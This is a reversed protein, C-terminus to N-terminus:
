AAPPARRGRRLLLVLGVTIAVLVAAGCCRWVYGMAVVAEDILQAATPRPTATPARTAVSREAGSPTPRNAPQLQPQGALPDRDPSTLTPPPLYGRPTPTARGAAGTGTVPQGASVTPTLPRGGPPAPPTAPQSVTPTLPLSTTPTVSVTVPRTAQATLTPTISRPTQTGLPSQLALDALAPADNSLVVTLGVTCVLLVFLLVGPILRAAQRLSTRTTM